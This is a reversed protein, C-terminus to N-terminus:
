LREGYTHIAKRAEPTDLVWGDRTAIYQEADDGVFEDGSRARMVEGSEEDLMVPRGEQDNGIILLHSTTERAVELLHLTHDSMELLHLTNDNM